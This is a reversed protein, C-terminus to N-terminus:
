VFPESWVRFTKARQEAFVLKWQKHRVGVLLGDDSFYFFEKRPGKKEKATLYPMFNFGDLHVKFKKGDAKHGKKLKEKIDTEGAAAMLTPLWDQMSMIENSVKGPKIKGPWRVLCPV